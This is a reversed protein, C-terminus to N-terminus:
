QDAEKKQRKDRVIAQERQIRAVVPDDSIQIGTQQEHLKNLLDRDIHEPSSGATKDLPTSTCTEHTEVIKGM